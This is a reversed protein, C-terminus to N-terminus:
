LGGVKTAPSAGAEPVFRTLWQHMEAVRRPLRVAPPPSLQSALAAGLPRNGAEAAM